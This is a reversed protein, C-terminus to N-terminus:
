IHSSCSDGVQSSPCFSQISLSKAGSVELLSQLKDGYKYKISSDLLFTYGRMCNERTDVNALEVLDGEM